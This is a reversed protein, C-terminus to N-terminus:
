FEIGNKDRNIGDVRFILGLIELYRRAVTEFM